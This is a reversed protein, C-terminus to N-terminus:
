LHLFDIAHFRVTLQGGFSDRIKSFLIRNLLPTDFGKKLWWTRYSVCYEFIEQFSRGKQGIKARLGKYIRDLILPVAAMVTPRLVNIDGRHGPM